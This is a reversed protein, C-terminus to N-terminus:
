FRNKSFKQILVTLIVILIGFYSCVYSYNAGSSLQQFLAVDDMNSNWGIKLENQNQQELWIELPKFFELLPEASMKTTKGRTLIKLLEPGSVSAGYQMIESFFFFMTLM